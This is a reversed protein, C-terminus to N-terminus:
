ENISGVGLEACRVACCVAVADSAHELVGDPLPQSEDAWGFWRRAVAEQVGHKTADGRGTLAKKATAPAIRQVPLNLKRWCRYRVAGCVEALQLATRVNKGMFPMEMGVARADLVAGHRTVARLFSFLAEGREQESRHKDIELQQYLILADGDPSFWVVAVGLSNVGVDFGLIRQENM